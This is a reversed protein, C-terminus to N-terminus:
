NQKDLGKKLRNFYVSSIIVMESDIMAEGEIISALTLVQNTTFNIEKAREALSDNYEKKFQGVLTNVVQKEALGYTFNYTNPYLYGELTESEIEHQSIYLSDNVLAIIRSSDVELVKHLISAIKPSPLGEPITVTLYSQKGEMLDKLVKYNSSNKRVLFMGAKLKTSKKFLEASLKFQQKSRIVGLDFLSDTATQFSTGWKIKLNVFDGDTQLPWYVIYGLVAASITALFLLGMIIYM